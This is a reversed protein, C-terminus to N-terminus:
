LSRAPPPLRFAADAADLPSLAAGAPLERFAQDRM